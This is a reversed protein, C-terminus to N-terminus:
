EEQPKSEEESQSEEPTPIEESSEGLLTEGTSQSIGPEASTQIPIVSFLMVCALFFALGRKWTDGKGSLVQIKKMTGVVKSERNKVTLWNACMELAHRSVPYKNENDLQM